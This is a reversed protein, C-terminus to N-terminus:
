SQYKGAASAYDALVSRVHDIIIDDPDTRLVGGRIRRYQVPFYQSLLTLPIEVRRLNGILVALATQVDADNWYYRIRDFLSYRRRFAQEADDGQYYREWYTPNEKMVRELTQILMSPTLTSNLSCLEREVECLLFVAERFAFTLGPGVKLIAFGDEVMERLKEATQYDASHAEFVLRPFERLKTSLPAAAERSYELVRRDGFEVGPQVVVGIVREWAGELGERNFADRTVAVTEEFDPVSTVQVGQEVEDSGGPVPVETGIIYLPAPPINRGRRATMRVHAEECERCLAACRRAVEKPDITSAGGLPISTDLHIKDFGAEVFSRVMDRAKEMASPAAETQFPVPGLHDGGLIIRSADFEEQEARKQISSRFGEPTFGTYGGFQNVQNSTSEILLVSDDKKAQKFAAMLVYPHSSCVSYIGAPKGRHQERVINRLYGSANM